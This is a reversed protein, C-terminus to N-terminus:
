KSIGDLYYISSNSYYLNNIKNTDIDIDMNELMNEIEKIEEDYKKNKHISCLSNKMNKIKTFCTKQDKKNNYICYGDEICNKWNINEMTAKPIELRKLEELFKNKNLPIFSNNIIFDM